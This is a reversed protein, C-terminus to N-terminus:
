LMQAALKEVSYNLFPSNEERLQEAVPSQMVLGAADRPNMGYRAVLYASLDALLTDIRITTESM